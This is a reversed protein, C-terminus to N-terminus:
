RAAAWDIQAAQTTATGKVPAERPDPAGMEVWKVFDAIVDDPLKGDPPMEVTEYRIAALILSKELDNPVVAPGSAGGRRGGERSDLFLNAKLSDADVSHCKYCREVLVPRIKQEFFDTGEDARLLHASLCPLLITLLSLRTM